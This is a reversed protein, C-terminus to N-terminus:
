SSSRNEIGYLHRQIESCRITDVTLHKHFSLQGMITRYLARGGEAASLQPVIPSLTNRRPFIPPQEVRSYTFFTSDFKKLLRMTRSFPFNSFRIGAVLDTRLGM